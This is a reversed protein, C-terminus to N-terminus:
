RILLGRIVVEVESDNERRDDGDGSDERIILDSFDGSYDRDADNLFDAIM